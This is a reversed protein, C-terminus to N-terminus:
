VRASPEDSNWNAFINRFRFQKAIRNQQNLAVRAAAKGTAANGYQMKDLVGTYQPDFIVLPVSDSPISRLLDLGHTGYNRRDIKM